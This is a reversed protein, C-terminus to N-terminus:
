EAYSRWEVLKAVVAGLALAAVLVALGGHEVARRPPPRRAGPADERLRRRVKSPTLKRLFAADEELAPAVRERLAGQEAASEAASELGEAAGEVARDPRSM